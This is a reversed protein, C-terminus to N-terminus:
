KKSQDKKLNSQLIKIEESSTCLDDHTSM